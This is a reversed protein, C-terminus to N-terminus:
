NAAARAELSRLLAQAQGYDPAILLAEEVLDRAARRDGDSLRQEGLLVLAEAEGWDPFAYRGRSARFGAVVAEASVEVPSTYRLRVLALRPNDGDIELARTLAQRFRRTHLVARLPEERASLAACAALVLEAEVEVAEDSAARSAERDCRELEPGPSRGHAVLLEATRYAAYARLYTSWIEADQGELSERAARIMATDGTLWGYDIRAAADLTSGAPPGQGSSVTTALMLGLIVAARIKGM